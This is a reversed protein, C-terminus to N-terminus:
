TWFEASPAKSHRGFNDFVKTNEHIMIPCIFWQLSLSLSLIHKVWLAEKEEEKEKLM